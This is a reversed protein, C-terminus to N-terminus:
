RMAFMKQQCKDYQALLYCQQARGRQRFGVSARVLPAFKYYHKM